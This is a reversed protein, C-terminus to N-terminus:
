FTQLIIALPWRRVTQLVEDRVIVIDGVQFNRKPFRWKQRATIAQQYRSTWKRWLEWRMRNIFNWRRLTHPQALTDVPVPLPTSLNRGTLFHGPTAALESDPDTSAPELLPRSNLIAETEVALSRLEEATVTRGELLTKLIRKASRVGAEWLGGTHPARPPNLKWQFRKELSLKNIGDSAARSNLFTQLELIERRAGIFNSGNDSVLLNPAGRRNCFDRLVMLFTETSLSTCVELHVAKTSFCIFIVLYAKTTVKSRPLGARVTFPGAYDVGTATFPLSPETRSQPLM